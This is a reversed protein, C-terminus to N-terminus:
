LECADEPNVQSYVASRVARGGGARRPVSVDPRRRVLDAPTGTNIREPLDPIPRAAELESVLADPPLGCLVALRHQDLAIASLLEPIRSTTAELLARSRATDFETGRGSSYAADVLRVTEQENRVNERAIRLLEQRGRLDIYTGALEGATM